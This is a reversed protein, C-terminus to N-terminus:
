LDLSNLWFKFKKRVKPFHIFYKLIKIVKYYVDIKIITPKRDHPKIDPWVNFLSVNGKFKQFGIM